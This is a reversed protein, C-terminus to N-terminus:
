AVAGFPCVLPIFVKPVGNKDVFMGAAKVADCPLLPLQRYASLHDLRAVHIMDATTQPMSSLLRALHPLRPMEVKHSTTVADNFRKGGAAFSYNSILRIKDTQDIAFLPSAYTISAPLDHLDYPGTARGLKIENYVDSIVADQLRQEVPTRLLYSAVKSLSVTSCSLDDAAFKAVRPKTAPPFVGGSPIQGLLPFGEALNECLTTDVYHTLNVLESIHNVNWHAAAPSTKHSAPLKHAIWSSISKTNHERIWNLEAPTLRSQIAVTAQLMTPLEYDTSLFFEQSLAWHCHQLTTTVEVPPAYDHPQSGRSSKTLPYGYRITTAERPRVVLINHDLVAELLPSLGAIRLATLIKRRISNLPSRLGRRTKKLPPSSM